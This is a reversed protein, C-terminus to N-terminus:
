AITVAKYERKEKPPISISLIGDEIKASVEGFNFKSEPLYFSHKFAAKRIRQSGLLETNEPLQVPKYSDVTKIVVKNEDFAIELDEKKFGAVAFNMIVTGDKAKLMECPPYNPLTYEVKANQRGALADDFVANAADMTNLLEDFFSM